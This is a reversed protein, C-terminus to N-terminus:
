RPTRVLLLVVLGLRQLARDVAGGARPQRQDQRGADIARAASTSGVPARSIPTGPAVRM